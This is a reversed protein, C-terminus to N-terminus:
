FARRVSSTSCPRLRATRFRRLPQLLHLGDAVLEAARGGDLFLEEGLQRAHLRLLAVRHRLGLGGFILQLAGLGHDLLELLAARLQRERLLLDGGELLPQGLQGAAGLGDLLLDLGNGLAVREHLRDLGFDLAHVLDAAAALGVQLEHGIVAGLDGVQARM